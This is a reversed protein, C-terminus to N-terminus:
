TREENVQFIQKWFTQIEEETPAKPANGKLVGIEVQMLSSRLVRNILIMHPSVECLGVSACEQDGGSACLTLAIPGEMMEIIQGLSFRPTQDHPAYGGKPGQISDIVGNKNLTKLIKSVMPYSLSLKSSLVKASVPADASTKMLTQLLFLALDTDKRLQIM